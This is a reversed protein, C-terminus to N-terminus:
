ITTFRDVNEQCKKSDPTRCNSSSEPTLEGCHEPSKPVGLTAIETRDAIDWLKVTCDSSGASALTRGDPSFAVSFVPGSHGALAEIETRSAVDWLRVKCDGCGGGSALTRGDPSFAVSTVVDTHGTLPPSRQRRAAL